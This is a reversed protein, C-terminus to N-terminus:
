PALLCQEISCFAVMGGFLDVAVPLFILHEHFVPVYITSFQHNSVFSSKKKLM